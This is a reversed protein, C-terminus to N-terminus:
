DDEATDPSLHGAAECRADDVKGYQQVAYWEALAKQGEDVGGPQV